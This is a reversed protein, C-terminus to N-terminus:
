DLILSSNLKTKTKETISDLEVNEPKKSSHHSHIRWKTGERDLVFTFRAPATTQEGNETLDFDYTGNAIAIRRYGLDDEVIKTIRGCPKFKLFYDFYMKIETRGKRIESDLTGLLLGDEIYLSIIAGVDNSCVAEMWEEVFETPTKM